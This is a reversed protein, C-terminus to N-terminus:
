MATFENLLFRSFFFVVNPSLSSFCFGFCWKVVNQEMKVNEKGTMLTNLDYHFNEPTKEEKIKLKVNRGSM